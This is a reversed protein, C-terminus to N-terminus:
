RHRGRRDRPRPADTTAVRPPRAPWRCRQGFSRSPRNIEHRGDGLRRTQEGLEWRWGGAHEDGLGITGAAHEGVSQGGSTVGDLGDGNVAGHHARQVGVLDVPQAVDVGHHEGAPRGGGAPGLCSPVVVGDTTTAM